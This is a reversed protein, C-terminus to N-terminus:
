DCFDITGAGREATASTGVSTAVAYFFRNKADLEKTEHIVVKRNKFQGSLHLHATRREIIM